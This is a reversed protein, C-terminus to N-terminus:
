PFCLICAECVTKSQYELHTGHYESVAWADSQHSSHKNPKHKPWVSLKCSLSKLPDIRKGGVVVMVVGSSNAGWPYLLSM